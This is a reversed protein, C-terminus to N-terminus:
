EQSSGAGQGTLMDLRVKAKTFDARANVAEFQSELLTRQTDLLHLLDFKGESYGTRTREYASRASPLIDDEQARIQAHAVNLAGIIETLASTMDRRASQEEYLSRQIRREAAAINGENRDFVQLPVSVSAVLAASGDENFVRTGLGVKFDPISKSHEVDLIAYRKGIEDGWRALAPNSDLMSKVQLISPVSRGKDLKGAVSAFLARGGGGWLASLSQRSAANKAAEAERQAKARALVINSRDLDIPSAKGGKVQAEVANKTNAATAIFGDLVTIREQSALVDVFYDAAKAAVSLRAAEYDWGAVSAELSASRLRKLRKDGLEITQSIQLTEEAVDFGTKSKTGAFNEIDLSVEPNIRYSAQAAEGHRAEIEMFAAKLQPSHEVARSVAAQLGITETVRAPGDSGPVAQPDPVWPRLPLQRDSTLSGPAPIASTASDGIPDACGILAAPVILSLSLSWLIRRNRAPM